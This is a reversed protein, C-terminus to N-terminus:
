PHPIPENAGDLLQQILEKMCKEVKEFTPIEAGVFIFVIAFQKEDQILKKELEVKNLRWAERLLRKVRNRDVARKFRKKSVSFM